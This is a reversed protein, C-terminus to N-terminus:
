LTVRRSTCGGLSEGRRRLCACTEEAESAVLPEIADRQSIRSKWDDATNKPIANKIQKKVIKQKTKTSFYRNEVHSFTFPAPLSSDSNASQACPARPPPRERYLQLLNLPLSGTLMKIVSMFHAFAVDKQIRKKNKREEEADNRNQFQFEFM